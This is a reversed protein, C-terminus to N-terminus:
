KKENDQNLTRTISEELFDAMEEAKVKMQNNIVEWALRGGIDDPAQMPRVIVDVKVSVDFDYDKGNITIKNALM